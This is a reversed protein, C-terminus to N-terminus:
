FSLKDDKKLTSVGAPTIQSDIRWRTFLGNERM